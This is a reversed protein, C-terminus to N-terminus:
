EIGLAPFVKNKIGRIFIDAHEDNWNKVLDNYAPVLVRDFMMLQVFMHQEATEKYDNYKKWLAEVEEKKNM